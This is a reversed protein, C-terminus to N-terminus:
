PMIMQGVGSVYGCQSFDEINQGFGQKKYCRVEVFVMLNFTFFSFNDNKSECVYSPSQLM